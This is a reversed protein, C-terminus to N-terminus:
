VVTLIQWQESSEARQERSSCGRGVFDGDDVLAGVVILGVAVGTGAGLVLVQQEATLAAGEHEV